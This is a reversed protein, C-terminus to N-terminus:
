PKVVKVEAPEAQETIRTLKGATFHYYAGGSKWVRENGNLGALDAVLTRHLWAKEDMGIQAMSMSQCGGCVACVALFFFVNRLLM